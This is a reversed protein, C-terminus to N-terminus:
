SIECRAFRELQSALKGMSGYRDEPDPETARRIIADLRSPIRFNVQRPAPPRYTLKWRVIEEDTGRSVPCGGTSVDYLTLGLGYVDIRPDYPDSRARFQDPSMYRLTGWLCDELLPDRERFSMASGFDCLVLRGRRSLLLNEPKVDRHVFGERHVAELARATRAFLHALRRFYVEGGGLSEQYRLDLATRSSELRMSYYHHGRSSGASVIRVVGPHAVRKAVRAEAEFRAVAKRVVGLHPSLVKIAVNRREGIRSGRYVASTAGTALEEQVRLDGLRDGARIRPPLVEFTERRTDSRDVRTDAESLIEATSDRHSEAM